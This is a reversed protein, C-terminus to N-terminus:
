RPRHRAIRALLCAALAYAVTAGTVVALVGLRGTARVDLFVYAPETGLFATESLSWALYAAPLALIGARAKPSIWWEPHDVHLVVVLTPLALHLVINAAITHAEHGLGNAPAIVILYVLGSFVAGVSGAARFLADVPRLRSVVGSGYVCLAMASWVTFYHFTPTPDEHQAVQLSIGAAASGFLGARRYAERSM